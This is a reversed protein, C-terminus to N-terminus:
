QKKFSDNKKCTNGTYDGLDILFSDWLRCYDSRLGQIDLLNPAFEKTILGPVTFEPWISEGGVVGDNDGGQNPDSCLLFSLSFVFLSM